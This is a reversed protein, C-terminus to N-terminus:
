LLTHDTLLMEILDNATNLMFADTLGFYVEANEGLVEAIKSAKDKATTSYDKKLVKIAVKEVEPEKPTERPTEQSKKM